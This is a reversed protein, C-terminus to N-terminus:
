GETAGLEAIDLEGNMVSAAIDIDKQLVTRLTEAQESALIQRWEKLGADQKRMHDVAVQAEDFQVLRSHARALYLYILLRHRADPVKLGAATRLSNVAEAAMGMRDEIMGLNYSAVWEKPALKFATQAAELAQPYAGAQLHVEALGNHAVASQPELEIMKEYDRRARGLKGWLRLLEARFRYHNAQEPESKILGDMIDVASKYDSNRMFKVAQRYEMPSNVRGFIMSGVIVWGVAAGLFALIYTPFFLIGLLVLGFAPALISAWKIRDDSSMRGGIIWAAGGIFVLAMLLQGAQGTPSNNFGLAFSAIGTVALLVLLTRFRGEGLFTRFRNIM